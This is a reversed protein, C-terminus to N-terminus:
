CGVLLSPLASRAPPLPRDFLNHREQICSKLVPRLLELRSRASPALFACAESLCVCGVLSDCFSLLKKLPAKRSGPFVALYHPQWTPRPEISIHAHKM